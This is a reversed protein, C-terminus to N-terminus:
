SRARDARRVWFLVPLGVLMATAGTLGWDDLHLPRVHLLRSLAPIQIVAASLAASAAALGCATWTRLRSLAASLVASTLTLVALAMARAHEINRGAGLSREYGAAVIVTLVAGVLVIHLWDATSFFRTARRRVAPALRESTPLDQFVLLATPHIILELWVIHIPMYLMPYGALPILAATIVLPIHIMLLYAFSLQLNRFLQRGEAVARVITRFNDDLLVISAIERASRTGREGMAIGVDAAQLAPVDNVGDGTVAVIEGRRQLAQVLGLKQSPMARAIVHVTDLDDGGGAALRREMEAATIVVPATGGLGIENAVARATLPHDGTVMITHIGAQRCSAIAEAVGERVPDEFCLLGAFHYGHQPEGGTWREADLPQWACAIVKHGETAFAAARDDWRAREAPAARAMGLMVEVSGKSAALVVNDQARVTRVIATERRTDETFPMREIDEVAPVIGRAAAAHQIANDLPDHGHRRSAIAALELLGAEDFGDAPVLHTLRLRGETITGTKDTCICSVRGINEVSVGRRVLAQRRALRYVGVGLFFTFVVPFEEPLAAVALTLASVVADVWGYGQRLRVIALIVCVVAAAVILVTVLNAIAAQAPTRERAGGRASRVIEGYLTEGGTFAVRLAADGTLLRAGALGWHEADVVVETDDVAIAALPRKRVPYAEGTLASEDVRLERGGVIVGDAPFAEGAQVFALDGPVVDDARVATRVGDRMVTATAALHSRLGATSAQTRWHLVADMGILPLVAGFLTGAELLEGLGAYLAGTAILFWIMPDYATDRLVDWWPSRGVETIENRGFRRRQEEVQATGLGGVGTLLGCLRDLPLRRTM